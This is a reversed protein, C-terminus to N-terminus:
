SAATKPFIWSKFNRWATGLNHMLSGDIVEGLQLQNSLETEAGSYRPPFRFLTSQQDPSPVSVLSATLTGTAVALKEAPLPVRKTWLFFFRRFVFELGTATRELTGFTYLRVGPMQWSAFAQIPGTVQPSRGLMRQFTDLTFVWGVVAFRLAIPVLVVSGVIIPLACLLGLVPHIQAAATIIGIIATRGSKLLTDLFPFPSLLIAVEVTNFVVWVAAHVACMCLWVLFQGVQAGASPEPEVAFLGGAGLAATASDPVSSADAAFAVSGLYLFGVIGGTAHFGEALANLPAKLYSFASLVTDKFAVLLVLVILTGWVAPHAFFGLKARASEDSTLYQYAGGSAMVLWPSKGTLSSLSLQNCVKEGASYAAKADKKPPLEVAFAPVSAFSMLLLVVALARYVV